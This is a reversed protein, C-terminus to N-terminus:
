ISTLSLWPLPQLVALIQYSYSVEQNSRFLQTLKEVLILHRVISTEELEVCNTFQFSYVLALKWRIFM